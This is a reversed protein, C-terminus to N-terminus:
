IKPTQSKDAAGAIGIIFGGTAAPAGGTSTPTETVDSTSTASSGSSSTITAPMPFTITSAKSEFVAQESTYLYKVDSPLSSWWAPMTGSLEAEEVSEAFTLDSMYKMEWTTPIATEMVSEYWSPYTPLIAEVEAYYSSEANSESYTSPVDQIALTIAPFLLAFFQYQM